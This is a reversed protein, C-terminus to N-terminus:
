INFLGEGMNRKKRQRMELEFYNTLTTRDNDPHHNHDAHHYNDGSVVGALLLSSINRCLSTRM